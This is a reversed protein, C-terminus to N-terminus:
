IFYVYLMQHCIIKNYVLASHRVTCRSNQTERQGWQYGGHCPITGDQLTKKLVLAHKDAVTVTAAANVCQLDFM